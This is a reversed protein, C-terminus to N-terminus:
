PVSIGSDSNEPLPPFDLYFCSGQGPESDFGIRGGMKETLERVIALGLGTGGRQRADAADAQSFKDFIHARFHEPIGPGQDAVCIRLQGNPQWQTWVQIQSGAPSFKAANSLLNAMIQHFRMPDLLLRADVGCPPAIQNDFKAAYPQNQSVCEVLLPLIDCHQLAFSMKGAVLKDIDLLDNILQTLRDCNEAAIQLMPTITDPLAGLAGGTLLGLSGSIATLPTRLEHSVMSVFQNKMQEIRRREAIDQMITWVMAQGDADQFLVESLAVALQNGNQQTLELEVPGFHAQQQLLINRQRLTASDFSLLAPLPPLDLTAQLGTMQQWQPNVSLIMGSDFRSLSIALPALEYLSALKQEGSRLAQEAKKQATVDWIFGDIYLLEGQNDYIGRGLEQVWRWSGDAHLLRYEITFRANSALDRDVIQRVTAADDPHQLSAFNVQHNRVFSRAAFGTLKEVEDSIFLMTWHQDNICRYVVGPLNELMSRHRQESLLLAHNLQELQTIDIAVGLYGRLEGSDTRIASVSLRVQKYQGDRTIYTWQRTESTGLRARYVFVDFGQISQGYEQSLQSSRLATETPDHFAAPTLKGIVDAASYGLMREAGTNFLQIVGNVDTAIMAAETSSDIVAQLRSRTQQMDEQSAVEDTVDRHTGFMLLPTGDANKSMVRGIAHIWRWSGNMHQMRFRCDFFNSQGQLHNQLAQQVPALDAPHVRSRWVEVTSEPEPELGLMAFWHSNYFTQGSQIHWEWTGMQTGDIIADLRNKKAMLQQHQQETQARLVASKMLTVAQASLQGLAKLQAATLHRPVTDFVCLTGVALDDGILLPAGSYSRIGDDATVLPNDAFRPDLRADPVDTIQHPTLIAHSCFSQDRSNEREYFKHCSKFWQRDRDILTLAAMGGGCIQVALETLADFAAEAPTDLINLQYLASLRLQENVPLAAKM